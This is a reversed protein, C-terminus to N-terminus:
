GAGGAVAWTLERNVLAALQKEDMQASPYVNITAGGAGAGLGAMGGFDGGLPSALGPVGPVELHDAAKAMGVEVGEMLGEGFPM